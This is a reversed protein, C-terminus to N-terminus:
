GDIVLSVDGDEEVFIEDDSNDIFYNRLMKLNVLASNGYPKNIRQLIKNIYYPNAQIHSFLNSLM